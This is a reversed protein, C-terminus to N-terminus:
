VTLYGKYFWKQHSLQTTFQFGNPNWKTPLAPHTRRQATSCFTKIQSQCTEVEEDQLVTTGWVKLKNLNQTPRIPSSGSSEGARNLSIRSVRSSYVAHYLTPRVRNKKGEGTRTRQLFNVQKFFTIQQDLNAMRTLTTYWRSGSCCITKTPQKRKKETKNLSTM